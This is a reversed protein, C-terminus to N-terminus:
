TEKSERSTTTPALIDRVSADTYRFLPAPKGEPLGIWREHSRVFTVGEPLTWGCELFARQLAEDSAEYGIPLRRLFARVNQRSEANRETEVEGRKVGKGELNKQPKGVIIRHLADLVILEFIERLLPIELGANNMFMVDRGTIRFGRYAGWYQCLLPGYAKECAISLKVDPFREGEPFLSFAVIGPVRLPSVDVLLSDLGMPRVCYRAHEKIDGVKQLSVDRILEKNNQVWELLAAADAQLRKHQQSRRTDIEVAAKYLRDPVVLRLDNAHPEYLKAFEKEDSAERHAVEVLESQKIIHVYHERIPIVGRRSLNEGIFHLCSITSLYYSLAEKNGASAAELLNVFWRKEVSSADDPLRLSATLIRFISRGIALDESTLSSEQDAHMEDTRRLEGFIFGAFWLSRELTSGVYTFFRRSFMERVFVYGFGSPRQKTQEPESRCFHACLYAADGTAVAHEVLSDSLLHHKRQCSSTHAPGKGFGEREMIAMIRNLTKGRESAPQAALYDVVRQIAKRIKGERDSRYFIAMAVGITDDTKSM